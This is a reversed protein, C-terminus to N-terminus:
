LNLDSFILEKCIYGRIKGSYEADEEGESNTLRSYIQKNRILLNRM